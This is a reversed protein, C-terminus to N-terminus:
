TLTKIMYRPVRIEKEGVRLLYKNKDFGTVQYTIPRVRSRRKEFTGSENQVIVPTGENIHFGNSNMIEYNQKKIRTIIEQELDVDNFVDNPSMPFEMLKSLTDHPANNYHEVFSDM